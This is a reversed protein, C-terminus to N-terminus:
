SLSSKHGREAVPRQTKRQKLFMPLYAEDSFCIISITTTGDDVTAKFCYSYVPTPQPGHDRCSPLPVQYSRPNIEPTESYRFSGTSQVLSCSQSQKISPIMATIFTTRKFEIHILRCGLWTRGPFVNQHYGAVAAGVAFLSSPLLPPRAALLTLLIQLINLSKLKKENSRQDNIFIRYEAAIARSKYVSWTQLTHM